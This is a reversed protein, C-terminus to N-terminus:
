DIVQRAEESHKRSALDFARSREKFFGLVLIIPHVGRQRYNVLNYRHSLVM